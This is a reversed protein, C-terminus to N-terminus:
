CLLQSAVLFSPQYSISTCPTASVPGRPLGDCVGQCRTRQLGMVGPDPKSTLASNASLILTCTSYDGLGVALRGTERQNGRLGPPGAKPREASFILAKPLSMFYQQIGNVSVRLPILQSDLPPSKWRRARMMLQCELSVSSFALTCVGRRGM